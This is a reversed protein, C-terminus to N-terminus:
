PGPDTRHVPPNRHAKALLVAGIAAAGVVAAVLLAWRAVSPAAPDPSNIVASIESVEGPPFVWSLTNGEQKGDTNVVEGAVAVKLQVDSRDSPLSTLDVQGSLVVRNGARRLGLHFRGKAAPAVSNLMAIEDFRLGGFQLRSGEYDEEAYPVVTVRGVLAPPIVIAPGPGGATAIVVEGSVTDDSQVALATRVRTCGGLLLASVLVLLALGAVVPRRATARGGSRVYGPVGVDQWGRDPVAADLSPHGIDPGDSRDTV